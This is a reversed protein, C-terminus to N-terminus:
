HKLKDKKTSASKIHTSLEKELDDANFITKNQAQRIPKGVHAKMTAPAKEAVDLSESVKMQMNPLATYFEFHIQKENQEQNSAMQKPKKNKNSKNRHEAVWDSVQAFYATLMPFKEPYKKYQFAVFGLGGIASVFLIFLVIRGLRVSRKKKTAFIKRNSNRRM